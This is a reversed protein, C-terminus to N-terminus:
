FFFLTVLYHFTPDGPFIPCDMLFLYISPLHHFAYKWNGMHLSFMAIAIGGIGLLMCLISKIKYRTQTNTHFGKLGIIISWTGFPISLWFLGLFAISFIGYFIDDWSREIRSKNM